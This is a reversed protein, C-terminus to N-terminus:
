RSFGRSHRAVSDIPKRAEARAADPDRRAFAEHMARHYPHSSAAFDPLALANEWFQHRLDGLAECLDRESPLRSDPFDQSRDVYADLM